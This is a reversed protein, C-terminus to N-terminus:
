IDLVVSATWDGAATREVRLEHYTVAKVERDFGCRDMDLARGVARARLATESLDDFQVEDLVTRRSEVYYLAEALWDHLLDERNAATLAIEVTEGGPTTALEGIVAYVGALAHRFLAREDRGRVRLLIDATHDCVEYPVDDADAAM